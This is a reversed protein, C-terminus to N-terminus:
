PIGLSYQVNNNQQRLYSITRLLFIYICMYVYVYVYMCICDQSILKNQKGQINLEYLM